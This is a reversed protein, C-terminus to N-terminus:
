FKLLPECEPYNKLIQDRVFQARTVTAPTRIVESSKLTLFFHDNKIGFSFISVEESSRGSLDIQGMREVQYDLVKANIVIEHILRVQQRAPEIIDVLYFKEMAQALKEEETLAGKKITLAEEIPDILQSLLFSFINEEGTGRTAMFQQDLTPLYRWSSDADLGFISLLNTERQIEDLVRDNTLLVKELSDIESRYKKLIDSFTEESSQALNAKVDKELFPGLDQDMQLGSKPATEDFFAVSSDFSEEFQAKYGECTPVLAAKAALVPNGNTFLTLSILLLM